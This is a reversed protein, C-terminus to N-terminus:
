GSLLGYLGASGYAIAITIRSFLTVLDHRAALLTTDVGAEFPISGLSILAVILQERNDIHNCERMLIYTSLNGLGIGLLLLYQYLSPFVGILIFPTTWSLGNVIKAGLPWSLSKNMRGRISAILNTLRTFIVGFTIGFCVILIIAAHPLSYIGVLETIITGATLSISVGIFLIGFARRIVLYQADRQL